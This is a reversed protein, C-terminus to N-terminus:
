EAAMGLLARRSAEARICAVNRDQAIPTLRPPAIGCPEAALACRPAFACGDPMNAPDPVTGPIATLRRRPGDIPPLAGILGQAYPHVPDAFLQNSPAEEIIRGAYM